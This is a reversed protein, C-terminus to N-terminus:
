SINSTMNPANIYNLRIQDLGASYEYRYLKNPEHIKHVMNVLSNIQLINKSSTIYNNFHIM